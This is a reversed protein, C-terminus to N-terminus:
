RRRSGRAIAAAFRDASALGEAASGFLVELRMRQRPLPRVQVETGLLDGWATALSMAALERAQQRDPKQEESGEPALVQTNSARVRATLEQVSWGEKAAARALAGRAELDDAMLLVIGHSAKLQRRELLGLIEESLKLLRMLNAVVTKDRGMREAIQWYTLGFEQTLTVCARAQEVPTLDERAMNEILAAELAELDDYRSVLAPISQLGALKAARWRREGAVLEYEGKRLSRVLVPQLVGRVSLSGALAQLAAEDFYRRPQAYNPVIQELPLERLEHMTSQPANESTSTSPFM